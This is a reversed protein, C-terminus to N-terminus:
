ALGKLDQGVELEKRVSRAENIGWVGQRGEERTKSGAFCVRVKEGTQGTCDVERQLCQWPEDGVEKLLRSM